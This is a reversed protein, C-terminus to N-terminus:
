TSYENLFSIWLRIPAFHTLNYVDRNLTSLNSVDATKDVGLSLEESNYGALDVFKYLMYTQSDYSLILKYYKTGTYKLVRNLSNLDYYGDPLTM